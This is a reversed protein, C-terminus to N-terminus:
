SLIVIIITKMGVSKEKLKMFFVKSVLPNIISVKIKNYLFLIQLHQFTKNNDNIKFIYLKKEFLM